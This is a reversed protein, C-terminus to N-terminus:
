GGSVGKVRYWYTYVEAFGLRAYLYRASANSHMVQLYAHHAGQARGWHLLARVVQRGLGQNRAEAATVIDFLGVWGRAEAVALGLALPVGDRHLTLFCRAPIINGLMQAM